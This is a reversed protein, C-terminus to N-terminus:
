AMRQGDMLKWGYIPCWLLRVIKLGNQIDLVSERLFQLCSEFTGFTQANRLDDSLELTGYQMIQGDVMVGFEIHEMNKLVDFIVHNHFKDLGIIHFIDMRLMARQNNMLPANKYQGVLENLRNWKANETHQMLLVFAKYVNKKGRNCYGYGKLATRTDKHLKNFKDSNMAQLQKYTITTM